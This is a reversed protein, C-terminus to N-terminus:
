VYVIGVPDPFLRDTENVHVVVIFTRCAKVAIRLVVVEVLAQLAKMITAFIYVRVDKIGQLPIM